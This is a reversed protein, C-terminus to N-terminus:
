QAVMVRLEGFRRTQLRLDVAQPLATPRAKPDLGFGNQWGDGTLLRLSLADVEEFVTLEPGAARRDFPALTPWYRRTLTGSGPQLQWEARGQGTEQTGPLVPQGSLSLAFRGSAENAQMAPEPAGTPPAFPLPAMAELDRRLLVLAEAIAWSRADRTSLQEQFRVAAGLAQVGMVAVLAFVAMAATLELLSLGSDSRM